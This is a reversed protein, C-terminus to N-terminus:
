TSTQVHWHIRRALRVRSRDIGDLPSPRMAAHTCGIHVHVAARGPDPPLNPISEIFHSTQGRKTDGGRERVAEDAGEEGGDGKRVNDEVAPEVEVVAAEAADAELRRAQAISVIREAAVLLCIFGVFSQITAAPAISLAYQGVPAGILLGPLMVAFERAAFHECGGLYLIYPNNVVSRVIGLMIVFEISLGLVKAALMAFALFVVAGGFGVLASVIAGAFACFSVAALTSLEAAM